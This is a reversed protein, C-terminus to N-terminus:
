AESRDPHCRLFAPNENAILSASERRRDPRQRDAM